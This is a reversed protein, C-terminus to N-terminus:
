GEIIHSYVTNAQFFVARVEVKYQEAYKKEHGKTINNKAVELVLCYWCDLRLKMYQM